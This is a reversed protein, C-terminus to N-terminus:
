RNILPRIAQIKWHGQEKLLSFALDPGESLNREQWRYVIRASDRGTVVSVPRSRLVLQTQAEADQTYLVRDFDLGQPPVQTQPHALLSDQCQRFYRRHDELYAPAIQGSQHLLAVYREVARFDVTYYNTTDEDNAAPVFPLSNLQDQYRAYWDMFAKVTALPSGTVSDTAAALRPSAAPGTTPVRILMEGKEPTPSCASGLLLLCLAHFATKM